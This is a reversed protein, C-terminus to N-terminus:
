IDFYDIPPQNTDITLTNSEDDQQPSQPPPPSILEPPTPASFEDEGEEEPTEIIEESELNEVRSHQAHNNSSSFSDSPDPTVSVIPMMGVANVDLVHAPSSHSRSHSIV